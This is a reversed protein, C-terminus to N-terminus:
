YFHYLRILSKNLFTCNQPFFYKIGKDMGKIPYFLMFFAPILYSTGFGFVVCIRHNQLKQQPSFNLQRYEYGSPRQNM